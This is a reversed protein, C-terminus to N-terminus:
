VLPTWARCNAWALHNTRRHQQFIWFVNGGPHPRHPIVSRFNAIWHCRETSRGHQKSRYGAGPFVAEPNDTTYLLLQSYVAALEQAWKAALPFRSSWAGLHKRIAGLFLCASQCTLSPVKSSTKPQGSQQHSTKKHSCYPIAQHRNM